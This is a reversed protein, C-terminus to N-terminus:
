QLESVSVLKSLGGFGRGAARQGNAGRNTVRLIMARARAATSEKPRTEIGTSIKGAVLFSLTVKLPEMRFATRADPTVAHGARNTYPAVVLIDRGVETLVSSPHFLAGVYEAHFSPLM